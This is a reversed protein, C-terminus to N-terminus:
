APASRALEVYLATQDLASQLNRGSLNAWGPGWTLQPAVTWADTGRGSALATRVEALRARVHAEVDRRREGLPRFCYGHGPGVDDADYAALLELSELFRGVANGEGGHSRGIPPNIHPLLTDGTLVLGEDELVLVVHGPSHGPTHRVRVRRGPIPLLEGDAVPELEDPVTLAPPTEGTIEILSARSIPMGWRRMRADLGDTYRSGRSEARLEAIEASHLRVPCGSERALWAALGSHDRHFHTLTISRIGRPDTGSEAVVASLYARNEATDQGPDVVHVGSEEDRLLYAFSHPIGRRFPVGVARVWSRLAVPQPVTGARHALYQSEDLPEIM